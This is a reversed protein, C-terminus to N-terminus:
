TSVVADFRADDVDVNSYGEEADDVGSNCTMLLMMM